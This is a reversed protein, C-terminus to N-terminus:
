FRQISDPAARPRRPLVNAGPEDAPGDDGLTALIDDVDQELTSVRQDIQASSPLSEELQRLQLLVAVAVMLLALRFLNRILPEYAGLWDAFRKM